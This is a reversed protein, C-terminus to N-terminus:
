ATEKAEEACTECLHERDRDGEVKVFGLREVQKEVNRMDYCGRGATSTLEIEESDDCKDCFIRVFADSISM